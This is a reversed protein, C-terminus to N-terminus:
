EQREQLTLVQVRSGIRREPEPGHNRNRDTTVTEPPEPSPGNNRNWETTQNPDTVPELGNTEEPGNTPEVWNASNRNASRPESGDCTGSGQETRGTIGHNRQFSRTGTVGNDQRKPTKSRTKRKCRCLRLGVREKSRGGGDQKM